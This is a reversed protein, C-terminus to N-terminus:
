QCRPGKLLLHSLSESADIICPYIKLKPVLSTEHNIKNHLFYIGNLLKFNNTLKNSNQALAISIYADQLEDNLYKNGKLM